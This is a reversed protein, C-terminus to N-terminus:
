QDGPVGAYEVRDRGNAKARYLARDAAKIIDALIRSPDISTAVGVSVTAALTNAGVEPTIAEFNSLVREAVALGEDLSTLSPEANATGLISM